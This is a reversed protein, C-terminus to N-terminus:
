MTGKMGRWLWSSMNLVASLKPYSYSLPMWGIAAVPLHLAHTITKCLDYIYNSNNEEETCHDDHYRSSGNANYYLLGASCPSDQLYTGEGGIAQSYAQTAIHVHLSSYVSITASKLKNASNQVNYICANRYDVSNNTKACTTPGNPLVQNEM